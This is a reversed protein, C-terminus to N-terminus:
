AAGKPENDVVLKPRPPIRRREPKRALDRFRLSVPGTLSWDLEWDRGELGTGTDFGIGLERFADEAKRLEGLYFRQWEPAVEPHHGLTVTLITLTCDVEQGPWVIRPRNRWARYLKARVHDRWTWRHDSAIGTPPTDDITM